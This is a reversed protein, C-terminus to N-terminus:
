AAGPQPTGGPQPAPQPTGGPQPAPQPNGGPQPAPQPNGGPQPTGGSADDPATGIRFKIKGYGMIMVLRMLQCVVWAILVAWVVSSINVNADDKLWEILLVAAAMTGLLLLLWNGAVQWSAASRARAKESLRAPAEAEFAVGPLGDLAAAQAAAPIAAKVQEGVEEAPSKEEGVEAEAASRAAKANLSALAM